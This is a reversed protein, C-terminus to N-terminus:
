DRTSLMNRYRLHVQIAESQVASVGSGRSCPVTGAETSSQATGIYNLYRYISFACLPFDDSVHGTSIALNPM